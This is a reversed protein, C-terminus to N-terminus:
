DLNQLVDDANMPKGPELQETASVNPAVQGTAPAVAPKVATDSRGSFLGRGIIGLILVFAIILFWKIVRGISWNHDVYANVDSIVNAGKFLASLIMNLAAQAQAKDDFSAIVQPQALPIQWQLVHNNNGDVILFQAARLDALDMRWLCPTQANPVYLVLAGQQVKAVAKSANKKFWM